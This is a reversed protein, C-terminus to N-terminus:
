LEYISHARKQLIKKDHSILLVAASTEAAYDTIMDIALRQISMDLRSSPEDCVLFKPQALLLRVIALRQLEGGSVQDFRRNLLTPNLSLKSLLEELSYGPVNTKPTLKNFVDALKIKPPFSTLPNQFLKQFLPRHQAIHAPEAIKGLWHVNGKNPKRIGLCIDALTSKGVGSPGYLGIIEGENIEFSINKFLTKTKSFAFEVDILQLVSPTQDNSSSTNESWNAPENEILKRAAQSKPNTIVEDLPGNEVVQGDDFVVVENALAKTVELDHTIIILGRGLAQIKQLLRITIAKSDNDLGKTPEDAIIFKSRAVLVMAIMARQQMGGSLQEPYKKLDDKSLGVECFVDEPRNWACEPDKRWKFIEDIQEGIRMTPNLAAVPEQPLVFVREKWLSESTEVGCLFVDGSSKVGVQLYGSLAAAFLSKGSGSKGIICYTLGQEFRLRSVSLELNGAKLLLDHIEISNSM